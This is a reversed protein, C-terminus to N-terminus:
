APPLINQPDTTTAILAPIINQPVTEIAVPEGPLINQPDTTTAISAPIINQPSTTTVLLTWPPAEARDDGPCFVCEGVRPGLATGANNVLLRPQTSAATVEARVFMTHVPLTLDVGADASDLESGNWGLAYLTGTDVELRLTATGIPLEIECAALNGSFLGLSDVTDGPLVEWFPGLYGPLTPLSLVYADEEGSGSGSGIQECNQALECLRYASTCIWPIGSFLDRGQHIGPDFVRSVVRIKDPAFGGFGQRDPVLHLNAEEYWLVHRNKVLVVFRIPCGLRRMALLHEQRGMEINEIQYLHSREIAVDDGRASAFYSEDVGPSQTRLLTTSALDCVWGTQSQWLVVRQVYERAIHQTM